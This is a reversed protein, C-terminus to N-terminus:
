ILLVLEQGKGLGLGAGYIKFCEECIYGWSGFVTRGDYRAKKTCFDCNPLTYLNVSRHKLENMCDGLYKLPRLPIPVFRTLPLSSSIGRAHCVM